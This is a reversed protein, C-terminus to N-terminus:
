LPQGALFQSFMYFSEKRKWQPAMHGTGKITVFSLDDKYQTVYGAVQGDVLWQRWEEVVQFKQQLLYKQTWVFSVVADTDGSYLLVRIGSGVLQPYLNASGGPRPSYNENVEANCDAWKITPDVHLADKVEPRNYFRNLGVGDVCPALSQDDKLKKNGIKFWPAYHWRYKSENDTYYCYRYVDYPNVYLLSDEVKSKAYKCRPANPDKACVTSYIEWLDLNMLQHGWVFNYFADDALDPDTVGNGVMIGKLNIKIDATPNQDQIYKALSPIYVGAYSEGTIWFERGQLEPFKDTFFSILAAYNDATTTDDDWKHTDDPYSFGVGAPSEIFLFNAKKNWAYPNELPEFERQGDEMVYPGIEKSFGLLSSCGPGGNLWLILPDTQNNGSSSIYVYHIKKKDSNPINLLGSWMYQQHEKPWGPFNPVYELTVDANAVWPALAVLLVVATTSFLTISLKMTKGWTSRDRICM